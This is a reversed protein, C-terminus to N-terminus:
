DANLIVSFAEFLACVTEGEKLDLKKVSEDTILSCIRTGDPLAVIVEASIMGETVAVVKGRYRNRASTKLEGDGKVLIVWPAKVTATVLSGERLGLGRMSDNTIVSVVRLGSPTTVEVQSQIDGALIATVKGTFSNRASTKIRTEKLIFFDILRRVDEESFNVYQATLGASQHGLFSQVVAIPLGERLLEIARSHRLVRPNILDKPIACEKAREYFKRRVFGQDLKLVSGRLSANMPDNLLREIERSVEKPLQIERRHDGRVTLISRAFDFDERDDVALAEGLKLAGHRVLLYLLWIRARAKKRAPSPSSAYWNRFSETLEFLQIQDLHKVGQPVDFTKAPCPAKGHGKKSSSQNPCPHTAGSSDRDVKGLIFRLDDNGLTNLFAALDDGIM